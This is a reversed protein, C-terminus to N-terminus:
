GKDQIGNEKDGENVPPPNSLSEERMM